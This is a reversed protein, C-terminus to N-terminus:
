IPKVYWESAIELKQNKLFSKKDHDHAGCVVLLQTAGHQQAKQCVANILKNGVPEWLNASAVCFDDIMLTFGGPEYVEPAKINRGIIFGITQSNEEALYIFYDSQNLLEFFWKQQLDDANEAKQWFYPIVKEFETRKINSLMVMSPIDQKKVSRIIM